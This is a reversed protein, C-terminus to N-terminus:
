HALPLHGSVVSILATYSGIHFLNNYLHCQAGAGMYQAERYEMHVFPSPGLGGPAVGFCNAVTRFYISSSPGAEALYKPVDTGKLM